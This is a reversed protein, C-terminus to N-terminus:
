TSHAGTSGSKASYHARTLLGAGTHFLAFFSILAPGRGFRAVAAANFAYDLLAEM